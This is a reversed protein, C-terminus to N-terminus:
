SLGDPKDAEPVFFMVEYARFYRGTKKPLVVTADTVQASAGRGDHFGDRNEFADGFDFLYNGTRERFAKCRGIGTFDIDGVKGVVKYLKGVVIKRM